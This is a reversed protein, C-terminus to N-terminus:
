RVAFCDETETRGIPIEVLKITEWSILKCCEISGQPKVPMVAYYLTSYLPLCRGLEVRLIMIIWIPFTIIIKLKRLRSSSLFLGSDTQQARRRCLLVPRHM